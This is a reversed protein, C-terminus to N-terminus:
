DHSSEKFMRISQEKVGPCVALAACYKRCHPGVVPPKNSYSDAIAQSLRLKFEELEAHTVWVERIPGKFHDGRPQLIVLRYKKRKGFKAVSGVLYIMLQTNNEVEVLGFGYKLDGVTLHSRHVIVIDSTGFLGVYGFEEGYDVEVEPHVVGKQRYVWDAVSQIHRTVDLDPHEVVKIKESLVSELVAHAMTGEDAAASSAQKPLAVTFRRWAPCSMWKDSASPGLESHAPKSTTSTPMYNRM